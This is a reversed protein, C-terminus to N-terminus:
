KCSPLQGRSIIPSGSVVSDGFKQEYAIMLWLTALIIDLNSSGESTEVSKAMIRMAANYHQIADEFDAHDDGEGNSQYAIERRALAIVMHMVMSNCEALLFIISIVSYRPNKTHQIMAYTTRFHRIAEHDKTSLALSCASLSPPSLPNALLANEARSWTIKSRLQTSALAEGANPSTCACRNTSSAEDRTFPVLEYDDPQTRPRSIGPVRMQRKGIKKRQRPVYDCRRGLRICRECIPRGEDCKVKKERCTWCGAKSRPGSRGLGVPEPSSEPSLDQAQM